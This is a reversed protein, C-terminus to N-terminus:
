AEEAEPQTQRSGRRGRTPNRDQWLHQGTEGASHLNARSVGPSKLKGSLMQKRSRRDAESQAWMPWFTAKTPSRKPGAGLSTRPLALEPATARCQSAGPTGAHSAGTKTKDELLKHSTLCCLNIQTCVLSSAPANKRERTEYHQLTSHLTRFFATRLSSPMAVNM